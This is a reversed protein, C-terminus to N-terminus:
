VDKNRNKANKLVAMHLKGAENIFGEGFKNQFLGSPTYKMDYPIVESPFYYVKFPNKKELEEQSSYNSDGVIVQSRRILYESHTEIIFRYKYYIHLEYFLDALKSQLMPHLNQEPEEIIIIKKYNYDYSNSNTRGREKKRRIDEPLDIALRFFLIMLRISGMGMDALNVITGDENTITVMHAEGGITRIEYDKGIGFKQMWKTVTIHQKKNEQSAYEHITCSMYDNTDKASYIITPTIVHAYIYEIKLFDFWQFYSSLRPFQFRDINNNDVLISQFNRLFKVVNDGLKVNPRLNLFPYFFEDDGKVYQPYISTTIFHELSSILQSFINSPYLPCFDYSINTKITIPESFSDFYLKLYKETFNTNEMDSNKPYFTVSAEDKFLDFVLIINYINDKISIKTINGYIAEEDKDDGVIEIGFVLSPYLGINFSICNNDAENCLARKFTGIHALYNSNFYFKQNKFFTRVTCIKEEKSWDGSFSIVNNSIRKNNCFDSLALLGKIITSKGSNNEGVFFTIPCFELLSSNKYKRFNRFEISKM